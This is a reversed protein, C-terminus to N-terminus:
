SRVEPKGMFAKADAPKVFFSVILYSFFGVLLGICYTAFQDSDKSYLGTVTAGGIAGIVAAIDSLGSQPARALTRYVIWGIVIGFCLSGVLQLTM